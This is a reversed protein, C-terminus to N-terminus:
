ARGRRELPVADCWMFRAMADENMPAYSYFGWQRAEAEAVRRAAETLEDDAPKTTARKARAKTKM